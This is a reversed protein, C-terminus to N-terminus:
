SWHSGVQKLQSPGVINALDGAVLSGSFPKAEGGKGIVKTEPPPPNRFPPFM